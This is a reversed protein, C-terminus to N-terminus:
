RAPLLGCNRSWVPGQAPRGRSGPVGPRGGRWPPSNTKPSGAVQFAGSAVVTVSVRKYPVAVALVQSRSWGLSVSRKLILNTILKATPHETPLIPQTDASRTGSPRHSRTARGPWGGAVARSVSAASVSAYAHNDDLIRAVLFEVLDDMHGDERALHNPPGAATDTRMALGRWQKLRNICREVANRQKYTEADFAPPRGGDRARVITSDIQVLWDIDGAADARAQAEQLARTFVGELAYRRFRTYVTQWPGYREPLDRWSIGTRIKYVMGNIVRRNEV